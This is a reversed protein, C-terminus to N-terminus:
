RHRAWRLWHPLSERQGEDITFPNWDIVDGQEGNANDEDTSSGNGFHFRTAFGVSSGGAREAPCAHRRRRVAHRPYTRGKHCCRRVVGVVRCV